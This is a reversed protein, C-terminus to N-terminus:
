ELVVGSRRPRGPDYLERTVRGEIPFRAGDGAFGLDLRATTGLPLPPACPWFLRCNTAEVQAHQLFAARSAFNLTHLNSPGPGPAVGADLIRLEVTMRGGARRRPLSCALHWALAPASQRAPPR